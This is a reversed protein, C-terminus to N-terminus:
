TANFETVDTEHLQFRSRLAEAFGNFIGEKYSLTPNKGQLQIGQYNGSALVESVQENNNSFSHRYKEFM